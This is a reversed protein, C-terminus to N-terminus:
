KEFVLLGGKTRKLRPTFSVPSAEIYHTDIRAHRETREREEALALAHATERQANPATFSRADMTPKIDSDSTTIEVWRGIKELLADNPDVYLGWCDVDTCDCQDGKCPCCRGDHVVHRWLETYREAPCPGKWDWVKGDHVGYRGQEWTPGYQEPESRELLVWRPAAIENGEEDKIAVFIPFTYGPAATELSYPRWRMEDPAWALKIIPRGGKTTGVVSDIRKQYAVRANETFSHPPRM